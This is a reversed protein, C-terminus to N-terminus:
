SDFDNEEFCEWVKLSKKLKASFVECIPAVVKRPFLITQYANELLKAMKLNQFSNCYKKRIM